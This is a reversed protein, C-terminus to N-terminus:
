AGPNENEQDLRHLSIFRDIQRFIKHITAVDREEMETRGFLRRLSHKFTEPHHRSTFGLKKMTTDIHTYMSEIAQFPAPELTPIGPPSEAARYLEYGHILVAQSLNLSPYKVASPIRSIIQCLKIEDNTLGAEERGFVLAAEGNQPISLLKQAIEPPGYFLDFNRRTRHSTGVTLSVGHLAEELTQFVVAGYLIDGSGHAMQRAEGSTHDSPNVLYLRSLGFNKMARCVSGINGPQKPQVLVVRIRDLPNTPEAPQDM